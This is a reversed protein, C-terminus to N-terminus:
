KPGSRGVSRIGGCRLSVGFAVGHCGFSSDLFHEAFGDAVGVWFGVLLQQVQVRSGGARRLLGPRGADAVLEEAM